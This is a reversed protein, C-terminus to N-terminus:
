RDSSKMAADNANSRSPPAKSSTPLRAIQAGDRWAADAEAVAYQAIASSASMARSGIHICRVSTSNAVRASAATTVLRGSLLKSM